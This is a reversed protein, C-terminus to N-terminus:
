HPNNQPSQRTAIFTKSVITRIFEHILDTVESYGNSKMSAMYSPLLHYHRQQILWQSVGKNKGALANAGQEAILLPLGEKQCSLDINNLFEHFSDGMKFLMHLLGLKEYTLSQTLKKLLQMGMDKNMIKSALAQELTILWQHFIKGDKMRRRKAVSDHLSNNLQTVDDQSIIDPVFALLALPALRLQQGGKINPAGLIHQIKPTSQVLRALGSILFPVNKKNGHEMIAEVFRGLIESGMIQRSSKCAAIVLLLRHVKAKIDPKDENRPIAAFNRELATVADLLVRSYEPTMNVINARLPALYLALKKKSELLIFGNLDSLQNLSEFQLAVNAPSKLRNALADIYRCYDISGPQKSLYALEKAIHWISDSVTTHLVSVIYSTVEAIDAERSFDSCAAYLYLLRRTCIEFDITDIDSLNGKENISSQFKKEISDYESLLQRSLENNESELIQRIELLAGNISVDLNLATLQENIENTEDALSPTDPLRQFLSKAEEFRISLPIEVLSWCLASFPQGHKKEAALMVRLKEAWTLNDTASLKEAM